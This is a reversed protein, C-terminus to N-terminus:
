VKENNKWNSFFQGMYSWWMQLEGLFVSSFPFPLFLFVLNHIEKGLVAITNDVEQSARKVDSIVTEETLTLLLSATCPSGTLSM